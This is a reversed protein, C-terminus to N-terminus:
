GGGSKSGTISASSSFRARSWVLDFSEDPFGMSVMSGQVITIREPLLIRPESLAPLMAYAQRTYADRGVGERPLGEHIEFLLEHPM